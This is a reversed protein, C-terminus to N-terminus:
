IDLCIITDRNQGAPMSVHCSQMEGGREQGRAPGIVHLHHDGGARDGLHRRAHCRDGAIFAVVDRKRSKRAQVAVSELAAHRTERFQAAIAGVGEPGPALRHVAERQRHRGVVDRRDRCQKIDLHQLLTKGADAFEMIQMMIAVARGVGVDAFHGCADRLGGFSRTNRQRQQRTKIRM